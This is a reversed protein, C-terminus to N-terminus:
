FTHYLSNIYLIITVMTLLCRYYDNVHNTTVNYSTHNLKISTNYAM